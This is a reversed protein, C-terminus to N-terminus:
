AVGSLVYIIDDAAAARLNQADTNQNRYRGIAQGATFDAVLAAQVTQPFPDAGIVIKVLGEPQIAAGAVLPVLSGPVAVQLSTMGVFYAELAFVYGNLLTIDGASESKDFLGAAPTLVDMVAFTNPSAVLTAEYVYWPSYGVPFRIGAESIAVPM